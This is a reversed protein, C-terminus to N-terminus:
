PYVRRMCTEKKLCLGNNHDVCIDNYCAQPYHTDVQIQAHDVVSIRTKLVIKGEQHEDLEYEFEVPYALECEDVFPALARKLEGVTNCKM